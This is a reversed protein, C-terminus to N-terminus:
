SAPPTCGIRQCSRTAQGLLGCSTRGPGDDRRQPAPVLLRWCQIVARSGQALSRYAVRALGQLPRPTPGCTTLRGLSSCGDTWNVTLTTTSRERFTVTGEVLATFDGCDVTFSYPDTFPGFSEPAGRRRPRASDPGISRRGWRHVDHGPSRSEETGRWHSRQRTPAQTSPPTEWSGDAWMGSSVRQCFQVAELIKRTCVGPGSLDQRSAM